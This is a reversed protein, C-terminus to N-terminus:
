GAEARGNGVARMPQAVATNQRSPHACTWPPAGQWPPREQTVKAAHCSHQNIEVLDTRGMRGEQMMEVLSPLPIGGAAPGKDIMEVM